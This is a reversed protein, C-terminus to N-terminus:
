ALMKAARKRTNVAAASGACCTPTARTPAFVTSDRILRLWSFNREALFHKRWRQSHQMRTQSITQGIM